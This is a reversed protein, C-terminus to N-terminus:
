GKWAKLWASKMEDWTCHVREGYKVSDPFTDLVRREMAFAQDATAWRQTFGNGWKQGGLVEWPVHKNLDGLRDVANHAWGVKWVNKEGFQYVYTTAEKLADHTTTTTFSAPIPGMTGGPGVELYIRERENWIDLTVAVDFEARPLAMVREQELPNLLIANKIASMPLQRGLVETM